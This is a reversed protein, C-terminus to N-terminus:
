VPGVDVWWRTDDTLYKKNANIQDRIWYVASRYENFNVVHPNRLGTGGMRHGPFWLRNMGYNNQSAHLIRIDLDLNNNLAAGRHFDTATLSAFAPWSSRIMLWNQRFIGFNAADETKGDGYKYNATMADTELMAIALDLISGGAGLIVQKRAGLGKKLESGRDALRAEEHKPRVGYRPNGQGGPSRNGSRSGNISRRAQGAVAKMTNVSGVPM